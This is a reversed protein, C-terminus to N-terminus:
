CNAARDGSIMVSSDPPICCLRLGAGAAAPEFSEAAEQLLFGIRCPVLEFSHRELFILDMMSRSLKEIRNGEKFIREGLRQYMDEDCSTSRLLDAYGVIATLPTRLEHTFNDIFRQQEKTKDELKQITEEIAQAM